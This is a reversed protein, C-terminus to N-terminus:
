LEAEKLTTFLQALRPVDGARVTLAEAQKQIERLSAEVAEPGTGGASQKRAIAGTPELVSLTAADLAPDVAQAFEVSAARLSTGAQQCRRVLSGVVQYAKRFPMGKKVLAEALDTAQTFGEDLGSRCKKPDFTVRPLALRLVELVGSLLPATELLSARDEQLDRNYGGPLGKVTVLLGVLNGIARGSKGRILEFVDPNKKQPMMSSGMSIDGSLTAFGFEATTFDILDTSLRSAHVMFRSAAYMFDLAFDRDGVTDMGNLTVSEFALLRCTVDRDIPLSTGSIAGVGLPLLKCQDLVFALAQADRLFAAGYSGLWYALSVPQARQRHTYSPMMVDKELRARIVLEAIFATLAELTRAAAERVHLRLDTAVQDNRSRASHLLAAPAGITRNLEVEVAMHVDEENPLTLEGKVAREWLAVLGARIARAEAIPIVATRGLMTVHAMSGVLDEFLLQRDLSLSSSFALVQPLLGPGGAAETKALTM